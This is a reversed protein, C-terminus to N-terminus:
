ICRVQRYRELRSKLDPSPWKGIVVLQAQPRETLVHRWCRDLFWSIAQVNPEFSLSGCFVIEDPREPHSSNPAYFEHDVGNPVTFVNRAGALRLSRSDAESVSVVAAFKSLHEMGALAAALLHRLVSGNCNGVLLQKAYHLIESDVADLIRPAETRLLALYPALNYDFGVIRDPAFAAVRQELWELRELRVGYYRSARSLSRRGQAATLRSLCEEFDYRFNWSQQYGNSLSYPDDGRLIFWRIQHESALGAVLNQVVLNLGTHPYPFDRTVVAIKM